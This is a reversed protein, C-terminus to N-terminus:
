FAAATPDGFRCIRHSRSILVITIPDYMGLSEPTQGAFSLDEKCRDAVM